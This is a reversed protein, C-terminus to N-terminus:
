LYQVLTSPSLAKRQYFLLYASETVVATELPSSASPAVELVFEDDFKLWKSSSSSSSSSSSAPSPRDGEAEGCGSHPYLYEQFTVASRVASRQEPLEDDSEAAAEVAKADAPPATSTAEVKGKVASPTASTTTTPSASPPIPAGGAMIHECRAVATYHGGYMGGLHNVVGYLEYTSEGAVAEGETAAASDSGEATAAVPTDVTGATVDGSVTETAASKAPMNETTYPGMRLDALPFKVLTRIKGGGTANMVLRKLHLILTDPLRHISSQLLGPCLKKCCDCYYEEIDEVGVFKSRVFLTKETLCSNMYFDNRRVSRLLHEISLGVRSDVFRDSPSQPASVLQQLAQAAQAKQQLLAANKTFSEHDCPTLSRKLVVSFM